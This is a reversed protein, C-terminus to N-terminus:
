KKANQNSKCCNLAATATNHEPNPRDNAGKKKKKKEFHDGHAQSSM